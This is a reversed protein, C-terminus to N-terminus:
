LSTVDPETWDIQTLTGTGDTVETIGLALLEGFM